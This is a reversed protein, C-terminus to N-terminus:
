AKRRRTLLVLGGLALLSMTVPEPVEYEVVFRCHDQQGGTMDNWGGAFSWNTCAWDEGNDWMNNPEGPSWNAYTITEGDIWFALGAEPGEVWKWVGETVEDSAAIWILDGSFSAVFDNEAESTITVLHGPYGLYSRSGAEVRAENWTVADSVHEYYNGTPGLIPVAETPAAAVALVLLAVWAVLGTRSAGM